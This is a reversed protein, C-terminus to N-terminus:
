RSIIEWYGNKNSGIRRIKNKERLNAVNREVTRLSIELLLSIDKQTIYPNKSIISLIRKQVENIGGNIGGNIYNIDNNTLLNVYSKSPSCKIM